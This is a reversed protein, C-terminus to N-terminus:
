PGNAPPSQGIVQTLVILIFLTPISLLADTFRM